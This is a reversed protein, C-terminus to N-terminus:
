VPCRELANFWSKPPRREEWMRLYQQYMDRISMAQYEDNRYYRKKFEEFPIPKGLQAVREKETKKWEEILKEWYTKDPSIIGLKRAQNLVAVEDKRPIRKGFRDLVKDRYIYVFESGRNNIFVHYKGRKSPEPSLIITRCRKAAKDLYERFNLEEIKSTDYRKEEYISLIEHYRQSIKAIEKLDDESEPIMVELIDRLTRLENYLRKEM